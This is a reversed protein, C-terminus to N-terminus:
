KKKEKEERGGGLDGDDGKLNGKRGDNETNRRIKWVSITEFWYYLDEVCFISFQLKM